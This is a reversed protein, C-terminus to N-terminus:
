GGLEDKLRLSEKNWVNRRKGLKGGFLADGPDGISLGQLLAQMSTREETTPPRPKIPEDVIPTNILDLLIPPKTIPVDPEDTVDPEDPPPPKLITEDEYTVEVPPLKPPNLIIEDVYTVDPVPPLKKTDTQLATGDTVLPTSTKLLTEKDGTVDVPPLKKTTDDLNTKTTFGDNVRQLLSLGDQEAPTLTSTTPSTVKTADAIAKTTAGTTAGTISGTLTGTPTGTTVGTTTVPTTTIAKNIDLKTQTGTSAGLNGGTLDQGIQTGTTKVSLNTPSVDTTSSGATKLADLNEVSPRTKVSTIIKGLGEKPSSFEYSIGNLDDYVVTYGFDKGDPTKSSVNKRYSVVGDADTYKIINEGVEGPRTKFEQKNAINSPVTFDIDGVAALDSGIKSGYPAAVSSIEDTSISSTKQKPQNSVDGAYDVGAMLAADVPSMGLANYKTYEGIAKQILPDDIGFKAIDAVAGGVAGAIANQGVDQGTILAAVSQREANILASATTPSVTNPFLNAINKNIENLTKPIIKSSEVGPIGATLSNAAVTATINRVVDEPPAGSALQAAANIGVQQTFTFNPNGTVYASIVMPAGVRLAELPLDYWNSKKVTEATFTTAVPNGDADKQPILRGTGDDKYFVSAHKNTGDISNTVYYMGDTKKDIEKLLNINDIVTSTRGRDTITKYYNEVPINFIKATNILQDTSYGSTLGFIERGRLISSADSKVNWGFKDFNSRYINSPMMNTGYSRVYSPNTLYKNMTEDIADRDLIPFGTSSDINPAINKPAVASRLNSLSVGLTNVPAATPAATSAVPAAATLGSSSKLMAEAGATNGARYLELAQAASPIVPGVMPAVATPANTASKIPTVAAPTSVTAKIPKVAGSKLAALLNRPSGFAKATSESVPGYPTQIMKAM